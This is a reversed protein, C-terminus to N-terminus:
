SDENLQKGRKYVAGVLVTYTPTQLKERPYKEM